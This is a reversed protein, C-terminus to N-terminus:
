PTEGRDPRPRQRNWLRHCPWLVIWTAQYLRLNAQPAWVAYAAAVAALGFLLIAVTPASGGLDLGAGDTSWLVIGLLVLGVGWAFGCVRLTALPPASFNNRSLPTTM